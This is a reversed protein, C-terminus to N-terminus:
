EFQDIYKCTHRMGFGAFFDVRAAYAAGCRREHTRPIAACSISKLCNEGQDRDTEIIL